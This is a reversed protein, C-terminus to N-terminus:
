LIGGPEFPPRPPLFLPLFVSVTNSFTLGVLDRAKEISDNEAPVAKPPTRRAVTPIRRHGVGSDRSPSKRWGVVVAVKEGQISPRFRVVLVLVESQSSKNSPNVM